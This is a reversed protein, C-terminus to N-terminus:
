SSIFESSISFPSFRIFNLEELNGTQQKYSGKDINKKMFTKRDSAVTTEFAEM